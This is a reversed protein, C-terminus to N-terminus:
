LASLDRDVVHNAAAHDGLYGAARQKEGATICSSGPLYSNREWAKNDADLRVERRGQVKVSGLLNGSIKRSSCISYLSKARSQEARRRDSCRM